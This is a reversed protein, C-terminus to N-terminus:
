NSYQTGQAFGVDQLMDIFDWKGKVDTNKGLRYLKRTLANKNKAFSSPVHM